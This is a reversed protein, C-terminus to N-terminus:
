RPLYGLPDTPNGSRRIEFHLKVRNSGSNGMEGIKQGQKVYNGEKVLVRRHHAYASLYTQNHKIIVLNGYGRLGNGSYVVRGAASARIPTGSKGVIDIGSSGKKPSFGRIIRGNAPWIWNKVTGMSAQNTKTKNGSSSPITQKAQPRQSNSQSATRNSSKPKPKPQSQNSPPKLRIQQGPKIIFFPRAIGNWQALKRYDVKAAWAISYLTDGKSVVHLQSSKAQTNYERIPVVAPSSCGALISACVLGGAISLQVLFRLM